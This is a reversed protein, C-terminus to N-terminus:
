QVSGKLRKNSGNANPVHDLLVYGTLGTVTISIIDTSYEIHRAIGDRLSFAEDDEVNRYFKWDWTRPYLIRSTTKNLGKILATQLRDAVIPEAYLCRMVTNLAENSPLTVAQWRLEMQSEHVSFGTAQLREV